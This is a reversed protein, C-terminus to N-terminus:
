RARWRWRIPPAAARSLARELRAGRRAGPARHAGREEPGAGDPGADRHARRRAGEGGGREARRARTRAGARSLRLGRAPLHLGQHLRRRDGPGALIPAAIESERAITSTDVNVISLIHQGEGKAYRLAALTDATEGSQSVVIM